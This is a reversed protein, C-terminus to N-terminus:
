ERKFLAILHPMPQGRLWWRARDVARRLRGAVTLNTARSSILGFGSQALYRALSEDSWSRVHQWEHFRAGCDPCFKTSAGLNEENPTTIFLLGGPKLLRAIERLTEDLRTDDLHEVVEILLVLDYSGAALGTPLESLLDAGAFRPSGGAILDLQSIASKSPDLGTYEWSSGLRQLHQWLSGPGCGFDLVRLQERLPANSLKLIQEGHKESFFKTGVAAHHNWLRAIKVEDWVIEHGAVLQATM